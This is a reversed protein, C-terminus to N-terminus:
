KGQRANEAAAQKFLTIAEQALATLAEWLRRRADLEAVLADTHANANPDASMSRGAGARRAM